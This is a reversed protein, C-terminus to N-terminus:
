KQAFFFGFLSILTVLYEHCLDSQLQKLAKNIHFEVTKVTINQQIAIEKNKLGDYRSMMFVKRTKDPLKELSLEIASRLEKTILIELSEDELVYINSRQYIATETLDNLDVTELRLTRLYNLCKNKSIIMLYTIFCTDENLNKREEWLSLFTDQVIEKAIEEDFVYAFAFKQLRSWYTEVIKKFTKEDSNKLLQVDIEM